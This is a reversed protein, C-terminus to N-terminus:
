RDGRFISCGSIFEFVNGESQIDRQRKGYVCEIFPDAWVMVDPKGDGNFDEVSLPGTGPAVITPAQFTGDGNGALLYTEGVFNAFDTGAVLLDLKGDGNFDATGIGFPSNVGVSTIVTGFTGDGHGLLVGVPGNANPTYGAAAIDVKGDGNFDGVVLQGVANGAFMTYSTGGRFTGDGNGLYVLLQGNNPSVPVGVVDLKGDGNLDIAQVEQLQAGANTTSASGFTGDGNGPLVYLFTQNADLLVDVKGDGTFDGLAAVTFQVNTGINIAAARTFTGDANGLFVSGSRTVIDGRGDGNLDAGFGGPPGNVSSFVFPIPTQASVGMGCLLICILVFMRMLVVKM